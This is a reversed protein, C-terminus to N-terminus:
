QFTLHISINFKTMRLNIKVTFRDNCYGHHNPLDSNPLDSNDNFVIVM